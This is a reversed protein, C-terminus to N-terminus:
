ISGQGRQAGRQNQYEEYAVSIHQCIRAYVELKVEHLTYGDREYKQRKQDLESQLVLGGGHAYSHPHVTVHYDDNNMWVLWIIREQNPGEHTNALVMRLPYSDDHAHYSQGACVYRQQFVPLKYKVFVYHRLDGLTNFEETVCLHHETAAVNKLIFNMETM